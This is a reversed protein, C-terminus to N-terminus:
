MSFQYQSKYTGSLTLRDSGREGESAQVAGRLVSSALSSTELEHWRRQLRYGPITDKTVPSVVWYQHADLLFPIASAQIRKSAKLAQKLFLKYLFTIDWM